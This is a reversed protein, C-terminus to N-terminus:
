LIFFKNILKGYMKAAKIELYSILVAYSYCKLPVPLAAASSLQSPQKGLPNYPSFKLSM